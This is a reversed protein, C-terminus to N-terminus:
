YTVQEPKNITLNNDSSLNYLDSPKKTISQLSRASSVASNKQSVQLLTPSNSESLKIINQTSPIVELALPSCERERESNEIVLNSIDLIHQTRQSKVLKKLTNRNVIRFSEKGKPPLQIDVLSPETFFDSQTQRVNDM